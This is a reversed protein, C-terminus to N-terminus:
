LETGGAITQPLGHHGRGLTRHIDAHGGSWCRQRRARGMDPSSTTVSIGYNGPRLGRVEVPGSHDAHVVVVLGSGFSSAGFM